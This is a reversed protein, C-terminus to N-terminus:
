DLGAISRLLARADRSNIKGDKNYDCASREIESADVLGAIYRLLARADRSNIKGDGNVDGIQVDEGGTKGITETKKEGCVTCTYTMEGDTTETPQVTVVGADWTHGVPETEENVYHYGCRRCTHSTYGSETCTPPIVIEECDHEPPIVTTCQEGCWTCLHSREGETSCTPAITVVGEDLIHECKDSFCNFIQNAIYEHGNANPLGQRGTIAMVYLMPTYKSTDKGDLSTEVDTADVYGVRSYAFMTKTALLNSANVLDDMMAGLEMVSGNAELAVGELDNYTGVLIIVANANFVRIAEIVQSQHVANSMYTYAYWELGGEIDYGGFNSLNEERLKKFMQDLLDELLPMNEEGVLATWQEESVKVPNKEGMYQCMRYTASYNSWGITILDAKAIEKSNATITDYVDQIPMQAAALNKYSVGLKNALKDVYTSKQRNTIAATEDGLAVYYSNQNPVYQYTRNEYDVMKDTEALLKNYAEETTIGDGFFEKLIADKQSEVDADAALAILGTMCLGFLLAGALLLALSNRLIKTMKNM